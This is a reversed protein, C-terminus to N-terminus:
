IPYVYLSPSSIFLIQTDMKEINKQFVFPLDYSLRSIDM